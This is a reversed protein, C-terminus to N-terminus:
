AAAQSQQASAPLLSPADEGRLAAECAATLSELVNRQQQKLTAVVTMMSEVFRSGAASQTGFSGKRWLVGPRISREATNNTPEVGEVPVFTWLAERRKLIDRCTGATKPVGCCSGAELLREVDRRLLTMYSRFTSRKLTGERVRHWGTFMQHAQALLAAGVEASTGGRERMAEFDRLLHAWCLQRWRVPYWNYASYRDTVLIGAFTEGLLERAVQGGRSLRVVFVTVWTTVAVWLWAQKGGQRWRTEDLHAVAQQHVYTRAEEVPAAVAATTAQELQSITGVSMPVGFVEDLMQQTIRKSLRYAGTCLAGMTHVRPGYTGSPVGAPWPARTLAGCTPCVLQHWQYETVVPKIPPLEIVQHRWPARDEGVLPAQCHACQEAKIVVVEDVDEVPLLTRTYGPHGPQGGRRRHSRPRRTRGSQPPDSSPPRSSNQSTQNLQEQLTRVQEQLSHVMSALAELCAELARIHTQAEPPTREWVKHPLAPPTEM